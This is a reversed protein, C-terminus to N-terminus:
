DEDDGWLNSRYGGAAKTFGEENGNADGKSGLQSDAIISETEIEVIKANPAIYLKKM